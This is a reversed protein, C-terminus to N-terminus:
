RGIKNKRQEDTVRANLNGTRVRLDKQPGENWGSNRRKRKM